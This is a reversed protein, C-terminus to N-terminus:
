LSGLICLTILRNIFTTIHVGLTNSPLHAGLSVVGNKINDHLNRVKDDERSYIDDSDHNEDVSQPM